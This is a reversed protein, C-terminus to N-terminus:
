PEHRGVDLAGPDLPLVCIAVEGLDSAVGREVLANARLERRHRRLETATYSSNKREALASRQARSTSESCPTGPHGRV